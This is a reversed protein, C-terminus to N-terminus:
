KLIDDIDVRYRDEPAQNEGAMAWAIAHRGTGAGVHVGWSPCLVGQENAVILHRTESPEGMIHVVRTEPEMGFYLYMESRRPHLHGPMQNWAAGPELFTAGMTLQCADVRQPVVFRRLTRNSAASTQFAISDAESLAIKVPRYAVHCPAGALWFKAPRAADANSFVVEEAFAPVYLADHTSLNFAKGDVTVRGPGGVNFVALERRWLFPAANGGVSSDPLRLPAAGDPMAGGTVMRDHTTYTVLVQGPAFVREILFADRMQQSNMTKFESASPSERYTDAGSQTAQYQLFPLEKSPPPAKKVLDSAAAAVASAPASAAAAAAAHTPKGPAPGARRTAQAAAAGVCALLLALRAARLSVTTRAM